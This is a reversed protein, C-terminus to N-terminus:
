GGRHVHFVGVARVAGIDHGDGEVEFVGLPERALSMADEGDFARRALAQEFQRHLVPDVDLVRAAADARAAGAM